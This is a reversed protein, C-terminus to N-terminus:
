VDKKTTRRVVAALGLLGSGVLVLMGSETLYPAVPEAAPQGQILPGAGNMAALPQAIAVPVRSPPPVSPEPSASAVAAMSALGLLAGM